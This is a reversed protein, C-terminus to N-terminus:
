KGAKEAVKKLENQRAGYQTSRARPNDRQVIVVHEMNLDSFGIVTATEGKLRGKVFIVKDWVKFASM